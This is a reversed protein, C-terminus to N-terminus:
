RFSASSAKGAEKWYIREGKRRRSRVEIRRSRAVLQVPEPKTSDHRYISRRADPREGRGSTCDWTEIVKGFPCVDVRGFGRRNVKM